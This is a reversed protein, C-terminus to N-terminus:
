KNVKNRIFQIFDELTGIEFKANKRIFTLSRDKTKDGFVVLYKDVVFYKVDEYSITINASVDIRNYEVTYYTDYFSIKEIGQSNKNKDLYKKFPILVLKKENIFFVLLLMLLFLALVILTWDTPQGITYQYLVGVLPIALIVMGFLSIVKIILRSKKLLVLILEKTDNINVQSTVQYNLNEQM